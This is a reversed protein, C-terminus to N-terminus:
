YAPRHLRYSVHQREAHDTAMPQKVPNKIGIRFDWSQSTTGLNCVSSTACKIVKHGHGQSIIKLGKCVQCVDCIHELWMGYKFM